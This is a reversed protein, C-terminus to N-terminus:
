LRVTVASAVAAGASSTAEATLDSPVTLVPATTDIPDFHLPVTLDDGVHVELDVQTPTVTYGAPPTFMLRYPGPGVTQPADIPVEFTGETQGTSPDIATVTVSAFM